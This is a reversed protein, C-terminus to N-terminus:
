ALILDERRTAEQEKESLERNADLVM